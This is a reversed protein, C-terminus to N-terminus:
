VTKAFKSGESSLCFINILFHVRWCMSAVVIYVDGPTLNNNKFLFVNHYVALCAMIVKKAFIVFIMGSLVTNVLPIIKFFDVILMMFRQYQEETIKKLLLIKAFGRIERIFYICYLITLADVTFISTFLSHSIISKIDLSITGFAYYLCSYTWVFMISVFIVINKYKNRQFKLIEYKREFELIESILRLHSHNNKINYLILVIFGCRNVFFRSDELFDFLETIKTSSRLPHMDFILAVIDSFAQCLGLAIALVRFVVVSLKVKRSESYNPLSVLKQIQILWGLRDVFSMRVSINSFDCQM